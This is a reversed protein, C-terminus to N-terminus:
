KGDGENEFAELVDDVALNITMQMDLLYQREDAPLGRLFADERAATGIRSSAATSSRSSKLYQLDEHTGEAIAAYIAQRSLEEDIIKRSFELAMLLPVSCPAVRKLLTEINGFESTYTCSQRKINDLCEKLNALSSPSLKKYKKDHSKQLGFASLEYIL